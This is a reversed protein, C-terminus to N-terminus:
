PRERVGPYLRTKDAIHAINYALFINLGKDIADASFGPLAGKILNRAGEGVLLRVQSPSLEQLDFHRRVENTADTLDALSDCLTGDLDFIILRKKAM